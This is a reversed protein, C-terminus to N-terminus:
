SLFLNLDVCEPFSELVDNFCLEDVFPTLGLLLLLLVPIVSIFTLMDKILFLSLIFQYAQDLFYESLLLVKELLFNILSITSRNRGRLIFHGPSLLLHFSQSM